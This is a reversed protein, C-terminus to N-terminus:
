FFKVLRLNEEVYVILLSDNYKGQPFAWAFLRFRMCKLYAIRQKRTILMVRLANQHLGM